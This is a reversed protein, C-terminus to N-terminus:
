IKEQLGKSLDIFDQLSLEEARANEKLNLKGLAIELGERTYNLESNSISNVLTKRRNSFAARVLEFFKDGVEEREEKPKLRLVSSDVKPKPIFVNKSVDFLLETECFYSIFVSLSGYDKTNERAHIRKAVEKQILVSILSFDEEIFKELIPTTINYPLNAVIKFKGKINYDSRLQDLDLKLIDSNIITAREYDALTEELIPILRQDIEVCFVRAGRILIEETLVGIGPGVELVLDGAEVEGADAIKRVTNGDVLFNQGLSKTTKFGHREMIDAVRKPSYLREKNM